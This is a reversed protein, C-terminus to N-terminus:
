GHVGEELVVVVAGPRWEHPPVQHRSFVVRGEPAAIGAVASASLNAVLRWTAGDALPWDVHVLGADFRYSGGGAAARLRPLLLERRVALLQRVLALRQAHPERSAEDWRLRSAEFTSVANPDPIRERAVPDSFAAFRAFENRRGDSVAQALEPGFDCFYLFPTSAGWEEGMFLMPVHPSLLLCALVAELRDPEALASLREGLARNGVQDHNQLFSVFATSPLQGSPEGHPVGGRYLSAQGQYDFGQALTRAFRGVPGDAYDAYYGEAEGSLLVHAAHHLDDNWQASAVRPLGAADRELFRTRNGEHELVLHVQRRTGPGSHLSDAIEEVIHRPSTDAIAHVADLRLGDVHFEEVWYLANHRFFERVTEHGPGDFNIAAGWPTQHAPNFFSPCYAHLYNGEPGFHNYVVDLLVMLGLSHAEDVLAKLADPPGYSADPAFPLVGDYGWNRRGPFDAVPMLEIATFGHEALTRLKGRAADFTGEPTFTGVHLELIVAEHWPRGRWDADHWHFADPDVVESAGHVDGPNFRSAPDPVLLGNGVDFRYPTGPGANNVSLSHWGGPQAQLPLRREGGKGLVVTVQPAAPAWLRFTTRDRSDLRTGFPMPHSSM